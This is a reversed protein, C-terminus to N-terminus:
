EVGQLAQEVAKKVKARTTGNNMDYELHFGCKCTRKVLNDKVEMTGNDESVDDSGCKPCDNIYPAVRLFNRVDM